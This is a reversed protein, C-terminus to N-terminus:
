DLLDNLWNAEQIKTDLERLEKSFRDANERAERVNLTSILKIESKTGRIQRVAAAEAAQRWVNIHFKLADRRAIADTLTRGDSIRVALNTRNIRAVVSEFEEAVQNFEALLEEAKESPSDGEQVLANSKVRETLQLMRKQRDARISLAEALKM